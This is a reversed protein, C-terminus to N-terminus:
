ADDDRRRRELSWADREGTVVRTAPARGGEVVHVVVVVSSCSESSSEGVNSIEV